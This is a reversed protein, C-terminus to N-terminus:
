EGSSEPETVMNRLKTQQIIFQALQHSGVPTPHYNDTNYNSIKEVSPYDEGYTQVFSVRDDNEALERYRQHMLEVYPFCQGIFSINTEAPYYSMIAIDTSSQSKITSLVQSMRTTIDEVEQLCAEHNLDTNCNCPVAEADGVKTGAILDNLGGNVVVLEYDSAADEAPVFQEEIEHVKAGILAKSIIKEQLAFGISHGVGKCAIDHYAIISDGIFQLRYDTKGDGNRDLATFERYTPCNSDSICGTLLTLTSVLVLHTKM